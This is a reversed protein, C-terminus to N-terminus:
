MSSDLDTKRLKWTGSSTTISKNNCCIYKKTKIVWHHMMFSVQVLAGQLDLQYASPDLINANMDYALLAVV